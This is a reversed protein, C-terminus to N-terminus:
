RTVEQGLLEREAEDMADGAANYKRREALFTDDDIQGRRYSACAATYEGEAVRFAALAADYKSQDKGSTM